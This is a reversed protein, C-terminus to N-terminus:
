PQRRRVVMEYDKDIWTENLRRAIEHPDGPGFLIHYARHLKDNVRVINSREDTGQFVRAKRHHKTRKAM